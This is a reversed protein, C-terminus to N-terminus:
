PHRYYPAQIHRFGEMRCFRTLVPDDLVETLVVGMGADVVMSLLSLFAGVNQTTRAQPALAVYDLFGVRANRLAAWHAFGIIEGHVTLGGCFSKAGQSVKGGRDVWYAIESPDTQADEPIFSQYITIAQQFGKDRSSMFHVFTADNELKVPSM